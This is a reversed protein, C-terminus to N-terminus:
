MGITRNMLEVIGNIQRKTIKPYIKKLRCEVCFYKDKTIKPNVIFEHHCLNCKLIKM